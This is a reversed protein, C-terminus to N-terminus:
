VLEKRWTPWGQENRVEYGGVGFAEECAQIVGPFDEAHHDDGGIVGGERINPLWVRLDTRVSDVDHAADLLVLDVGSHAGAIMRAARASTTRLPKVLELAEPCHELMMRCFLGFDGGPETAAMTQQEGNRAYGGWPDVAYVVVDSRGAELLKTALYGVSKGLAVGVEVVIAGERATRIFEDYIWLYAARGPIGSWDRTKTTM